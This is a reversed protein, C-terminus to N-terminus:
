DFAHLVLLWAIGSNSQVFSNVSPHVFNSSIRGIDRHGQFSALTMSVPVRSCLEVTATMLCLKFATATVAAPFTHGGGGVKWGGGSGQFLAGGGWVCVCVGEGGRGGGWCKGPFPCVGDGSRITHHHYIDHPTAKLQHKYQDNVTM